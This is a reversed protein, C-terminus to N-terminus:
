REIAIRRAKGLVTDETAQCRGVFAFCMRKRDVTAPAAASQHGSLIAEGCEKEDRKRAFRHVVLHQTEHCPITLLKHTPSITFFNKFHSSKDNGRRM